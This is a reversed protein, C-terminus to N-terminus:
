AACGAPPGCVRPYVTAESTHGLYRAIETPEELVALATMRGTCKPCALADLGWVRKLLEAWKVPSQTAAPACGHQTGRRFTPKPVVRKRLRSGAAVVGFSTRMPSRPAPILSSLRMLLHDASLVLVTNGRRDPRKLRYTLLGDARLKLRCLALPGRLLYRCVKELLVRDKGDMRPGVYLNLGDANAVVGNRPQEAEQEDVDALAPGMRERVGAAVASNGCMQLASFERQGNNVEDHADLGRRQFLVGLRQRIRSAVQEVEAQTPMHAQVFSVTGDTNEKYAGDLLLVHAHMHLNLSSGFRHRVLVGGGKGGTTSEAWLRLEDAAIREAARVLDGGVALRGNMQRPWSVVVQRMPVEPLVHDVLHAAGDGM